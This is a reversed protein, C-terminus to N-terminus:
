RIERKDFANHVLLYGNKMIKIDPQCYCGAGSIHENSDHVPYVDGYEGSEHIVIKWEFDSPKM